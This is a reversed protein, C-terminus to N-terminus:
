GQAVAKYNRPSVTETVDKEVLNGSSLQLVWVKGVAPTGEPVSPAALIYAGDALDFTDGPSLTSLAATSSVEM